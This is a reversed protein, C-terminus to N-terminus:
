RRADARCERGGRRADCGRPHPARPDHPRPGRRRDCEVLTRPSSGARGPFRRACRRHGSETTRRSLRAPTLPADCYRATIDGLPPHADAPPQEAADRRRTGPRGTDDGAGRCAGSDDGLIGGCGSRCGVRVGRALSRLVQFASSAASMRARFHPRTPADDGAGAGHPARVRRIMDMSRADDAHHSAARESVGADERGM